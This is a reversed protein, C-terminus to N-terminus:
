IIISCLIFRTFFLKLLYRSDDLNTDLDNATRVPPRIPRTIALQAPKIKPITIPYPISNRKPFAICFASFSFQGIGKLVCIGRKLPSLKSCEVPMGCSTPVDQGLDPLARTDHEITDAYAMSGIALLSALLINKM